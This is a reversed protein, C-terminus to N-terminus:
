KNDDYRNNDSQNDVPNQKWQINMTVSIGETLIRRQEELIARFRNGRVQYNAFLDFSACAPSLLVVDGAEAYLSSVKIAEEMSLTEIIIEHVGEFAAKVKRNDKGLCVIARVKQRVLDLLPTYDNGKDVGGVIWVVPKTMADLAWYVADVNTAKSDNIYTVENLTMITELRHPDNKFTRLGAAIAETELGLAQAVLVACQMNFYNHRGQLALESKAQQYTSHPVRFTPTEQEYDTPDIGWYRDKEHKGESAEIGKTILADGSNYIITQPRQKNKILRMKAAAYKDIDYEYRDLHDAKINLLVAIDPCFDQIRDLQFSSVELVYYPKPSLAVQKAWSYGINGGLGVDVGGTVLLHHILKSTTTKGNSGTVAVLTSDSHRYAWELEDMVPTGQADLKKILDAQDPIGPSKIVLDGALIRAESHGDQEYAIGHQKLEQEYAAQLAGFDSVFVKHGQQQALIAAGVGSEGGGLVVINKKDAM